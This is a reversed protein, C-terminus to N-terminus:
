TAIWIQLLSSCFIPNQDRFSSIKNKVLSYASAAISSASRFHQRHLRNNRETWVFYVSAQWALLGLCRQPKSCIRHELYRLTQAWSPSPMCNAKRALSNWVEFSYPCEFFLHDRSEDAANCLLCQPSTSLGWSIICDRTPCRNLTVLWVLFSHKPIGRSFWVIKFWSVPPSHTRYTHKIKLQVLIIYTQNIQLYFLESRLYRDHAYEFALQFHTQLNM